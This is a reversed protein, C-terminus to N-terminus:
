TFVKFKFAFRVKFKNATAWSLQRILLYCKHLRALVVAETNLLYLRNKNQSILYCKQSSKLIYNNKIRTISNIM